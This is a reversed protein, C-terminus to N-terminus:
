KNIVIGRVFIHRIISYAVFILAQVGLELAYLKAFALNNKKYGLGYNVIGLGM